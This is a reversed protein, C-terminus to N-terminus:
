VTYSTIFWFLVDYLTLRDDTTTDSRKAEFEDYTSFDFKTDRREVSQFGCLLCVMHRKKEQQALGASSMSSVSQPSHEWCHSNISSIACKQEEEM